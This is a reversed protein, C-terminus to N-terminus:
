QRDSTVPSSETCTTSALQRKSDETRLSIWTAFWFMALNELQRCHCCIMSQPSLSAFHYVGVIRCCELSLCTPASTDIFSFYICLVSISPGATECVVLSM